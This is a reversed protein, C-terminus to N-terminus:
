SPLTELPSTTPSTSKKAPMTAILMMPLTVKAVFCALYCACVIPAIYALLAYTREDTCVEVLDQAPTAYSLDKQCANRCAGTNFCRRAASSVIAIVDNDDGICDCVLVTLCM